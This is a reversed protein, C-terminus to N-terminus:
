ICRRLSARLEKRATPIVSQSIGPDGPYLLGLPATPFLKSQVGFRFTQLANTTSPFQGDV